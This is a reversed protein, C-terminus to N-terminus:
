GNVFAMGDIFDHYFPDNKVAKQLKEVLKQDPASKRIISDAVDKAAYWTKNTIGHSNFGFGVRRLYIMQAIHAVVEDNLKSIVIKKYDVIAHTAEHVVYSNWERFGFRHSGFRFKNFRPSYAAGSGDKRLEEDIEDPVAVSGELIRNAIEQYAAGKIDVGFLNFNIRSVEPSQLVRLVSIEMTQAM